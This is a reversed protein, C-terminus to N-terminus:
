QALPFILWEGEGDALGRARVRIETGLTSGPVEVLAVASADIFVFREGLECPVSETGIQGIRSLRFQGDGLAEAQGFQLIGRGVVAM